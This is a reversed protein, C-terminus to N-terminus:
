MGLDWLVMEDVERPISTEENNKPNGPLGRKMKMM